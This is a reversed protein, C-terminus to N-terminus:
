RVVVLKLAGLSGESPVAFYVGSALDPATVTQRGTAGADIEAVRRGLVDVVTIALPAPTDVILAGGARVPSPGIRWEAAEPTSEIATVVSLAAPGNVIGWGLLNDPTAAQSATSRLADRMQIPTLGPKAQLLQAVVGTVLPASYSTGAGFFSYDGSSSATVMETGQASVDPKIRGDATPGTSSFSARTGGPTAAGVTIASDADAPATIFQWTDNGENGASTVVILGRSAARDVARTVIATNGDMDAYTYSGEGEDFRSYGLSINVVDAGQAEMWELGAVLNDEEAHTETPAYETTAALVRAGRAPGVLTGEDSGLTISSVSLGHFSTQFQGGTFDRTALLRGSASIDVLAPHQFDYQTDLFGLVVGTGDYGSELLQDAGVNQLQTASPGYDGGLAWRSRFAAAETALPAHAEVMALPVLAESASAPLYRGVPRVERVFPLAAVAEYQEASLPASVAGLWRSEVVPVVGLASLTERAEPTMARDVPIGTGRLTRRAQAALPAEVPVTESLVIWYRAAGQAEARPFAFALLLALCLLFPRSM